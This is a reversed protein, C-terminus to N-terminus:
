GKKSEVSNYQTSNSATFSMVPRRQECYPCFCEAPNSSPAGPIPHTQMKDATSSAILQRMASRAAELADWSHGQGWVVAIQGDGEQRYEMIHALWVGDELMMVSFRLGSPLLRQLQSLESIDSLM